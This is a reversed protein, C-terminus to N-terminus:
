IVAPIAVYVEDGKLDDRRVLLPVCGDVTESLGNHAVTSADEDEPECCCSYFGLSLTVPAGVMIVFTPNTVSLYSLMITLALLPLSACFTGMTTSAVTTEHHTTSASRRSNSSTLLIKFLLLTTTTFIFFTILVVVLTAPDLVYYEEEQAAAATTAYYTNLSKGCDSSVLTRDHLRKQLCKDVNKNFITNMIHHHQHMSSSHANNNPYQISTLRRALRERAPDNNMTNDEQLLRRGHNNIREVIVIPDYNNNNKSSSQLSMADFFNFLMDDMIKDMADFNKLPSTSIKTTMVPSSSFMISPSTMVMSFNIMDNLMDGIPDYYYYEDSQKKKDSGVISNTPLVQREERQRQEQQEQQQKPTLSTFIDQPITFDLENQCLFGM